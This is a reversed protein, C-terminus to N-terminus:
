LLQLVQNVPPHQDLSLRYFVSMGRRRSEVVGISALIALHKSTSRLSLHIAQALDSVSVSKGRKLEKLLLLRRENALAKLQRELPKM